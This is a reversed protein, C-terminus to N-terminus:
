IRTTREMGELGGKYDARTLNRESHGEDPGSAQLVDVHVWITPGEVRPMHLMVCRTLLVAVCNKSM